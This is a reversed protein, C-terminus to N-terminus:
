HRDHVRFRTSAAYVRRPRQTREVKWARACWVLLPEWENEIMLRVSATGAPMAEGPLPGECRDHWRAHDSQLQETARSEGQEGQQEGTRKSEQKIAGTGTRGSRVRRPDGGESTRKSEQKSAGTGTHGCECEGHAAVNASASSRVEIACCRVRLYPWAVAPMPGRTAANCRDGRPRTRVRRLVGGGCECEVASRDCWVARVPYGTEAAGCWARRRVAAARVCAARGRGRGDSGSAVCRVRRVRAPPPTGLLIGRGCSAM